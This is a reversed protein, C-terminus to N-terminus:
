RDSIKSFFPIQSKCVQIFFDREQNYPDKLIKDILESKISPFKKNM